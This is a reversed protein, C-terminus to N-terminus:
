TGTCASLITSSNLGYMVEDHEVPRTSQELINLCYLSSTNEWSANSSTLYVELQIVATMAYV